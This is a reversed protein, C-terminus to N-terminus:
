SEGLSLQMAVIEWGDCTRLVVPAGYTSGHPGQYPHIVKDVMSAKTSALGGDNEGITQLEGPCVSRSGEDSQTTQHPQAPAAQESGPASQKAQLLAITLSFADPANQPPRAGCRVFFRNQQRLCVQKRSHKAEGPRSPLWCSFPGM